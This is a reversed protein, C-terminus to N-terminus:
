FLPPGNMLILGCVIVAAAVVRRAGFPERLLFTGMLAGFLVSTERLAAVHAMPGQSLAWIAIGYGLAAIAGGAAGRWWGRQLYAVLSARRRALAFLFLWPGEIVNLWAIYAVKHELTPGAARVGLGDVVIYGAITLGTLLAFLTALRHRRVADPTAPVHPMRRSPMALAILGISLLVVGAVDQARLTEGLLRGSFLAVLLPGMGRAIPYTHSLDGHAYAQLLFFYYFIHIATSAAMWKWAPAAVWPLFPAMLGGIVAGSLMIVGFTTVRDTADSKLIANWSAHMLGAALLLGIVLPDLVTSMSPFPRATAEANHLLRRWAGRLTM